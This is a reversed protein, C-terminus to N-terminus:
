QKAPSNILLLCCSAATNYEISGVAIKTSIDGAKALIYYYFVNGYSINDVDVSYNTGDTLAKTTWSGNSGVKYVIQPSSPNVVKAKHIFTTLTAKSSGYTLSHRFMWNTADSDGFNGPLNSTEPFKSIGNSTFYPALVGGGSSDPLWYLSNPAFVWSTTGDILDKGYSFKEQGFPRTIGWVLYTKGDIVKTKTITTKVWANFNGTIFWTGQSESKFVNAIALGLTDQAQGGVVKHYLSIICEDTIPEGFPIVKIPGAITVSNIKASITYKGVVAYAHSVTSGTASEGDGYTFEVNEIVKNDSGVVSFTSQVNQYVIMTDGVMAATSKLSIGDHSWVSPSNDPTTGTLEPWDRNKECSCLLAILLIILIKWKSIGTPRETQPIFNLLKKM